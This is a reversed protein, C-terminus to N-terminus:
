FKRAVMWLNSSLMNDALFQQFARGIRDWEDILLHKLFPQSSIDLEQDLIKKRVLEADLEGPTLVEVVEFGCEQFLRELAEPHFYNLHWPAEITNSLERLVLIDFGKISPTTLIFLGKPALLKACRRLFDKPWFLHEILEFNTLVNAEVLDVKEIPLEIVDLGRKRCTEALPRAPEVAIIKEFLGKEKIEQVFTGYGAGVDVLVKAEIHHKQCLKVIRKARPAFIQNRRTAETAPFINENWYNWSKSTNYFRELMELNPRPNVFLTGCADCSVFTFGSKEFAPRNHNSECAPCPIEVYERAFALFERNDEEILRLVERLMGDPRIDNERM